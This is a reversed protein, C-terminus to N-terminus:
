EASEPSAKLHDVLLRDVSLVHKALWEQMLEALACVQAGEGTRHAL